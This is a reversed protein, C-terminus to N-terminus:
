DLLSRFASPLNVTLSTGDKRSQGRSFGEIAQDLASAPAAIPASTPVPPLMVFTILGPFSSPPVLFTSPPMIAPQPIPPPAVDLSGATAGDFSSSSAPPVVASTSMVPLSGTAAAYPNALYMADAVVRGTSSDALRVSISNTTSTFVGLSQFVAGSTLTGNSALRQNVTVSGIQSAGDFILYTAATANSPDPVWTAFLEYTGPVQGFSWRASTSGNGTAHARYSGGLGGSELSWGSGLVRFSFATNDVTLVPTTALSLEFMGRGHTGAALIELTPNLALEVVQAHPLGDGLRSWHAGGDSSSYVGDDNGIYLVDGSSTKGVKITNTPLDPLNGSIDTWSAGGNTTKFVHGGGFADRVAYAVQSNTPDIELALVSGGPVNSFTWTSGNNTSIYVSQNAAAYIVSPNTQAVEIANVTTQTPWGAVGPNSIQSWSAGKNTSVNIRDTGFLVRGNQDVQYFSYFNGNGQIGSSVNVWTGGGNDSRELSTGTYTHYVTNPSTPDIRVYGGDGGRIQTWGLADNFKETGNDQSGGYAINRNTPDIAVGTFQTIQLDGNLNTWAISGPTPNDLRWIGGDNVVLLRGQSDFSGYHYDTHPSVGNTGDKIISWSSGGNRSEIIGARGYNSSGGAFVVNPNTPSVTIFNNYWGQTAMYEPPNTTVNWTAGSDTTKYILRINYTSPDAIAAYLVNPSSPAIALQIRGNSNGQPFNGAASWTAGGNTSKYVGNVSSGFLTGIAAYLTQPQNPDIQISTFQETSSLSSTTDTWTAGGDTTKYIGTNPGYLGNVGFNCVAAYAVNANTPDIAIENVTLRNFVSQGTLTWTDGGNTSVLIGRGYFSDGSNHAEGTGAYLVNSNSPAMALAGMFLVPQNDTLPSWDQGGNTTRWVGGGAAALFIRNVDIPDVVVGVSRGASPNSQGIPAPGIATWASRDLPYSLSLLTRDELGEIRAIRWAVVRRRSSRDAVTDCIRDLSRSAEGTGSMRFNKM